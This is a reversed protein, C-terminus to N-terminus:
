GPRQDIAIERTHGEPDRFEASVVPGDAVWQWDIVDRMAIDNASVLVDGVAIGARAGPGQPLVAVVESGRPRSERGYSARSAPMM